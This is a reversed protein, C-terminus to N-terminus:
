LIVYIALLLLLMGQLFKKGENNKELLCNARSKKNDIRLICKEKDIEPASSFRPHPPPPM